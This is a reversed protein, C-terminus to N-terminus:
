IYHILISSEELNIYASEDTDKVVNDHKGSILYSPNESLSIKDESDVDTPTNIIDTNYRSSQVYSPNWNVSIITCNKSYSNIEDYGLSDAEDEVPTNIDIGNHKSSISYVFSPNHNTSTTKSAESYKTVEDYVLTNGTIDIYNDVDCCGYVPNSLLQLNNTGINAYGLPIKTTPDHNNEIDCHTSTIGNLEISTVSSKVKPKYRYITTCIIVIIVVFLIGITLGSLSGAIIFILMTPSTIDPITLEPTFLPGSLLSSMTIELNLFVLQSLQNNVYEHEYNHQVQNM